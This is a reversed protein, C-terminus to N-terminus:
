GVVMIQVDARTGNIEVPEIPGFEPAGSWDLSVCLTENCIYGSFHQLAEQLAIPCESRITIRDTVNFDRNKRITQIRNVFERATCEEELEKTIHTNLAVTLDGFTEVV